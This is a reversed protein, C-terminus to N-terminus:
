LKFCPTSLINCPIDPLIDFGNKEHIGPRHVSTTLISNHDMVPKQGFRCRLCFSSIKSNRLMRFTSTTATMFLFSSSLVFFLPFFHAMNVAYIIETMYIYIHM